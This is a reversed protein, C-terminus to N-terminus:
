FYAVLQSSWAVLRQEAYLHATTTAYGDQAALTEARYWWDGDFRAPFEGTFQVSWGVTSAVTPAPSKVLIAPAWADLLGLVAQEDRGHRTRHRFYGGTVGEAAGSFPLGGETLRYAFHQSFEPLIGPIFPIEFGQDRSQGPSPAVPVQELDNARAAGLVAMVRTALQGDQFVDVAAFTVYRGQRLRVPAFAVPGASVPEIFSVDLRRLPADVGLGVRLARVALAALLGGYCTRGQMWDPPVQAMLRGNDTVLTDLIDAFETM